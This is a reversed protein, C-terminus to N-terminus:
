RWCSSILAADLIVRMSHWHKLLKYFLYIYQEAVYSKNTYQIQRYKLKNNNELRKVGYYRAKIASSHRNVHRQKVKHQHKERKIYFVSQTASIHVIVTQSVRDAM